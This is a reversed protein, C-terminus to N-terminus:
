SQLWENIHLIDEPCLIGAAQKLLVSQTIYEYRANAYDIQAKTLDSEANLVDVITSTGGQYAADMANLAIENSIVSQKLAQMQELQTIAGLYAQQTNSEVQRYVVEMQKYNQEYLHRAQRTKSVISGGSYVPMAAQVGIYSATNRPISFIDKTPSSQTLSGNIGLTPLHNARNIKIDERLAEAQYRAARLNYNQELAKNVWELMCDPEPSKFNVNEQLFAYTEIKDGTIESLKLKQIALQNEAALEQAYSNDFRAKAFQVDKIANVGVKRGAETQDLYKQLAIRQIKAYKLTDMARLVGFYSQVTRVILDQEAAAFTANAQKVQECAKDLQIWQQYYFIPQTLTVGYVTQDYNFKKITLPVTLNLFTVSNAEYVKNYAINSAAANVVPLFLARAQPYAEEAAFLAERAAQISPDCTQAKEYVSLLNDAKLQFPTISLLFVCLRIYISM